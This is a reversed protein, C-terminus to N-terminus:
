IQAELKTLRRDHSEVREIFTAMAIHLDHVGKVLYILAATIMPACVGAIIELALTNM